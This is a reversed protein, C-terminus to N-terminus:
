EADRRKLFEVLADFHTIIAGGLWRYHAEEAEEGGEGRDLFWYHHRGRIRKSVSRKDKTKLIQGNDKLIEVSFPKAIFIQDYSGDDNVPHRVDRVEVEAGIHYSKGNELAQPLEAEGSVRLINSKIEM